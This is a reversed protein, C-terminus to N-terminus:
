EYKLIELSTNQTYNLLNKGIQSIEEDAQAPGLAYGLLMAFIALAILMAAGIKIVEAGDM